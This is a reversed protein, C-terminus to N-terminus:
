ATKVALLPSFLARILDRLLGALWRLLLSFNHGAAAIVANSVADRGKLSNRGV